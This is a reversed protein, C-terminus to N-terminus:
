YADSSVIESAAQDAPPLTILVPNGTSHSSTDTEGITGADSKTLNGCRRGIDRFETHIRLFADVMDPDFHKGRGDRIVAVSREHTWAEKYVRRVTLADYVDAIAVIRAALPISEESLGRPYGRGDWREHHALAIQRAMQLFNSGGLRLEIERICRGGIEPHKEILSREEATLEGRKLLVSDPVGVKGIDHLASSIGILKVFSASIEDRYRPCRRIAKALLTSYLAIRELHNGTEPDRSEALKALGFVIADRTRVLDNQRRLLNDAALHEKQSAATRVRSLILYAVVAQLAMVWVFTMARLLFRSSSGVDTAGTVSLLSHEAVAQAFQSELWLGLGLCAAQAAVLM